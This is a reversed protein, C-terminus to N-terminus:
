RRGLVFRRGLDELLVDDTGNGDLDGCWTAMNLPTAVAHALPVDGTRGSRVYVMGSTARGFLPERHLYDVWLDDATGDGDFDAAVSPERSTTPLEAPQGLEYIGGHQEPFSYARVMDEGGLLGYTMLGCGLLVSGVIVTALRDRPVAADM